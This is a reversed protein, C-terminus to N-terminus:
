PRTIRDTASPDQRYAGAVWIRGEHSAPAAAVTTWLGAVSLSPIPARPISCSAAALVNGLGFAYRRILV